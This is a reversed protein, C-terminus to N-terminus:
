EIGFERATRSSGRSSRKLTPTAVPSVVVRERHLREPSFEGSGAQGASHTTRAIRPSRAHSPASRSTTGAPHIHAAFTPLIAQAFAESAFPPPASAAHGSRGGASGHARSGLLAYGAGILVVATVALKATLSGALGSWGGGPLGFRLGTAALRTAPATCAGTSGARGATRTTDPGGSGAVKTSTGDAGGLAPPSLLPLPLVSALGRLSAVHARCAPCERCHALALAHREGEPDLIGFAFARMLSSQQECWGGAKITDLLEGM